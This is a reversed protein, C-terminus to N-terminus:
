TPIYAAGVFVTTTQFCRAHHWRFAPDINSRLDFIIKCTQDTQLLLLQQDKIHVYRRYIWPPLLEVTCLWSTVVFPIDCAARVEVSQLFFIYFLQAYVFFASKFSIPIPPHSVSQSSLSLFSFNYLGSFLISCFIIM